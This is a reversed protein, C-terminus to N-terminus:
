LRGSTLIIQRLGLPGFEDFALPFEEGAFFDLFFDLLCDFLLGLRLRDPQKVHCFNVPVIEALLFHLFNADLCNHRICVLSFLQSVLNQSLVVLEILYCVQRVLCKALWNLRLYFLLSLAVWLDYIM